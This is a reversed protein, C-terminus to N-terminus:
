AIPVWFIAFSFAMMFSRFATSLRPQTDTIQESLVPVRVWFRISTSCTKIFPLFISGSASATGAASPLLSTFKNRMAAAKFLM